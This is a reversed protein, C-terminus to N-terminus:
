IAKAFMSLKSSVKTPLVQDNLIVWCIGRYIFNFMFKATSLSVWSPNILNSTHM